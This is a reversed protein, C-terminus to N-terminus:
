AAIHYFDEANLNKCGTYVIKFGAYTNVIKRNM